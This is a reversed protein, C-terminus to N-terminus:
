NAEKLYDDLNTWWDPFSNSTGTTDNYLYIYEDASSENIRIINEFAENYGEYTYNIVGSTSYIYKLLIQRQTEDGTFRTIVPSLFTTYADSLVAPTLVSASTSIYEIMYLKIQNESLKDESNFLNTFTLYNENYKYVINELLGDSYDSEEWKASPKTNGQTVLLLNFGEKTAVITDDELEIADITMPEIYSTPTTGNMFYQYGADPRSYDYLRQKLNFDVDLSSNTASFDLTQVTLGLKRYKAWQNEALIPNEDFTIRASAQYETVLADLKTSHDDTSANIESYIEYILHKAVKGLTTTEPGVNEDFTFEVENNQWDIVDDYEADENADFKVVMRRGSLSFYNDYAKDNYSKIFKVLKDSSYDTLLNASAYQVRYYDDIIEDMDATHFYLMLFNYKGLTSPYGSSSYGENAFNYLITELYNFYFERDENTKEYAETTKIIKKSFIDIATTQGYKMEMDDFLSYKTDTGAVLVSNTDNDDRAINVNWVSDNYEITAIVNPNPAKSLTKSYDSHDKLYSIELAEDFIKVVLDEKAETLATDIKTSDIKDTLLANYVEDKFAENGEANLIDWIDDNTLDKNYINNYKTDESESIKFPLYCSSNYSQFSTAYQTGEINLTEYVYKAFSSNIDNLEESTYQLSEVDKLANVANNYVEESDNNLIADTVKRLDNLTNIQPLDSLGSPLADRYGDYLYNYMQIFIELVYPNQIKEELNSNQYDDYYDCYEAYSMETGDEKQGSVYYFADNYVKIGFARLTKNYEDSNNFRIMLIEMDYKNAYLEKFKDAYQTITFLGFSDDEDDEDEELAEEAQKLVAEKALLEKALMPYYIDTIEKAITLYNNKDTSANAVLDSVTNEGIKEVKYTAYLSDVYTTELIKKKTEDLDDIEDWYSDNSYELDYIDQAVYDILRNKYEESLQNYSEQNEFLEKEENSLSDFNEKNVAANVKQIQDNLVVNDIADELYSTASWKLENWLDGKTVSYDGSTAYVTDTDLTVNSKYGKSCASLSIMFVCSMTVTLLRRPMKKSSLKRSM